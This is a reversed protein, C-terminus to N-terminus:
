VYFQWGRELASHRLKKAKKEIQNGSHKEFDVLVHAPFTLPDSEINLDQNSCEEVSVALCGISSLGQEITFHKWSEEASVMDGDYLSLKKKDKPTPKFAQSTVRQGQLWSPHIQRYLLTTKNM